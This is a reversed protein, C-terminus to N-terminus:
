NLTAIVMSISLVNNMVHAITSSIFGGKQYAFCLLLGAAIYSPLNILENVINDSSFNFHILGFVLGTLVYALWLKGSRNLFGFLGIRYTIEEVIPGILGFIILCIVPNYGIMVELASQNDNVNGKSLMSTIYGILINTAILAIGFVFGAIYSNKNKLLNLFVKRKPILIVVMIFFTILYTLVNTWLVAEPYSNLNAIFDNSTIGMKKCAINAWILIVFTSILSLGLWGLIFLGMQRISDFMLLNKHKTTIPSVENEALCNQCVSEHIDYYRDCKTCKINKAFM